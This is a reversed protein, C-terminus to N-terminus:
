DTHWLCFLLRTAGRCFFRIESFQKGFLPQRCPRLEFGCLEVAARFGLPFDASFMLMILPLLSMQIGRAVSLEHKKWARYLATIAEPLCGGTAITGGARFPVVNPVYIGHPKM